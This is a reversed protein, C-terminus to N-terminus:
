AEFQEHRAIEDRLVDYAARRTPGSGSNMADWFGDELFRKPSVHVAGHEPDIRIVWSPPIRESVTAFVDTPFWTLGGVDDRIYAIGGSRSPNFLLAIVLYERGHTLRQDSEGICRVRM